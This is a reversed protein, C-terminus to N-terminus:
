VFVEVHSELEEASFELATPALTYAIPIPNCGGAFGITQINMMVGCDKCIVKGDDEYYGTDGCIECADLGTGFANANKKIVIFRMETGNQATYGFRHLHGDEVLERSVSIVDGEQTTPELPSLEPVYEARRKGDTLTWLFVAASAVSLGCFRRRSLADARQLRKDAPTTVPHATTVAPAGPGAVAGRPRCLFAAVGALGIIVAMGLQTIAKHNQVFLVAQFVGPIRPAFGNNVLQQYLLILEPIMIVLFVLVTIATRCWAPALAVAKLYIWTAVVVLVTGFVFGALRLLSDTKWLSDGMLVIGDTGFFYPFGFYATGFALTVMSVVLLFRHRWSQETAHLDPNPGAAVMGVAVLFVVLCLMTSPGLFRNMTPIDILTTTLRLEALVFATALGALVVIVTITSVLRREIPAYARYGSVIGVILAVPLATQVAAVFLELM